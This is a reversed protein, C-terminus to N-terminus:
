ADFKLFLHHQGHKGVSCISSWIALTFSSAKLLFSTSSFNLFHNAAHSSLQSSSYLMILTNKNKEMTMTNANKVKNVNVVKSFIDDWHKNWSSFQYLAPLPVWRVKFHASFAQAKTLLTGPVYKM